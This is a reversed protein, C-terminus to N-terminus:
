FGVMAYMCLAKSFIRPPCPHFHITSNESNHGLAGRQPNSIAYVERPTDWCRKAEEGLGGDVIVEVQYPHRKAVLVVIEHQHVLLLALQDLIKTTEHNECGSPGGSSITFTILETPTEIKLAVLAPALTQARLGNRHRRNQEHNAIACHTSNKPQPIQSFLQSMDNFDTFIICQLLM